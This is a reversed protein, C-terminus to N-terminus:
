EERSRLWLVAALIGGGGVFLTGAAAPSLRFTGGPTSDRDDAEDEEDTDTGPVDTETSTATPTPEPTPTETPTERATPTATRTPTGTPDGVSLVQGSRGVFLRGDVLAPAASVAGVDSVARLDGGELGIANLTGTETAVYVADGAAAPPQPGGAVDSRWGRAGNGVGIRFVAGGDGVFIAAGDVLAPPVSVSDDVGYQWDVAGDLSLGYANGDGAGVLVRDDAVVPATAPEAGNSVPTSWLVRRDAADIATVYGDDDGVYVRGHGIAPASRIGSGVNVERDIEGTRQDVFYLTGADDAAYLIDGALKPGARVAGETEVTWFEIDSDVDVAEIGAETGLYLSDDGVTPTALIPSGVDYKRVTRGSPADLVVLVGSDRGAYVRDNEVAIGTVTGSASAAWQEALSTSPPTEGTAYGTNALDHHATPWGGVARQTEAATASALVGSAVSTAVFQRRSLRMVDPM